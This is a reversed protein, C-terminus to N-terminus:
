CRSSITLFANSDLIAPPIMAIMPSPSSVPFDNVYAKYSDLAMECALRFRTLDRWRDWMSYRVWGAM